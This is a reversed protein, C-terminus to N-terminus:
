LTALDSGNVRIVCNPPFENEYDYKSGIKISRL